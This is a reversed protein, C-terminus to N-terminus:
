VDSDFTLTRVGAEYESYASENGDAVTPAQSSRPRNKEKV